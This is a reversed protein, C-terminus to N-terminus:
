PKPARGPTWKNENLDIWQWELKIGLSVALSELRRAQHPLLPRDLLQRFEELIPSMQGAPTPGNVSVM